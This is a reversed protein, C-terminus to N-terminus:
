RQLCMQFTHILQTLAAPHQQCGYCEQPQSKPVPWSKWVLVPKAAQLCVAVFLQVHLFSLHLNATPFPYAWSWASLFTYLYGSLANMQKAKELHLMQDMFEQQTQYYHTFIEKVATLMHMDSRACLTRFSRSQMSLPQKGFRLIKTVHSFDLQLLRLLTNPGHASAM